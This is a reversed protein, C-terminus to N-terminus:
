LQTYWVIEIFTSVGANTSTFLGAEALYAPVVM